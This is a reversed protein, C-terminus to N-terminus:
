TRCQTCHVNSCKVAAQYSTIYWSKMNSKLSNHSRMDHAFDFWHNWITPFHFIPLKRSFTSHCRKIHMLKSQRTPRVVQIEYNFKFVSSFSLPLNNNCYDYMFLVTQFEYLDELKLIGASKFLPETHSNYPANLITRLARKQLLFTKNTLSSSANGWALIGYSLHPHVLAYYLTRLSEYPLVKKVQKIAFIARSMKSNVTAIHNKWSLSDDIHIGLFKTSIENCGNGIRTLETGNIRVSLDTFDCHKQSPKIVVYKTKNANLSLKNACFWNYLRNVGLNAEYFLLRLNPKSVFLTTDDAFSLINNDCSYLIDNVYLLYLLPGLISGQPVGCTINLLSSQTEQFEVFQKRDTLYNRFWSNVVGRVGYRNLKHLLIKHNIVDFAKSLDCFIALTYESHEENNAEACHNLFHIIPHITSHKPRFGYQHRYLINHTKLFGMVKDFMIKELLKSFSPLLSIPRYNNLSTNDSAKYIPVVKAIKLQDPVIGTEFSLNIIHALPKSIIDITEKLLKTSIDDHGSSLKSKLKHTAFLVTNETIPELFMSHVVPAPLYHTYTHPSAPVQQGTKHGIESFYKNFEDAIKPKDSIQEDNIIFSTPFTSKDNHKGITKNLIQWMKKM